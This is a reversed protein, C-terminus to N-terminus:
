LSCNGKHAKVVEDWDILGKKFLDMVRCHLEAWQGLGLQRKVWERMEKQVQEPEICDRLVQETYTFHVASFYDYRGEAKTSGSVKLTHKMALNSLKYLKEAVNDDYKDISVTHERTIYCYKALPYGVHKSYYLQSKMHKETNQKVANFHQLTM